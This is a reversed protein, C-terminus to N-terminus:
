TRVIRFVHGPENAPDLRVYNRAGHWTYRSGTLLDEVVYRQNPGIGVATLPVTVTTEQPVAPDTTVAILLDDAFSTKAYFLIKPNDSEGFTLNDYLQLARSQKRVKNIRAIEANATAQERAIDRGLTQVRINSSRADAMDGLAVAALGASTAASAFAQGIDDQARAGAVLALVIAASALYKWM